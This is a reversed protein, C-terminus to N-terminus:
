RTFIEDKAIALESRETVQEEVAEVSWIVVKISQQLLVCSPPPFGQIGRGAAGRVEGEM